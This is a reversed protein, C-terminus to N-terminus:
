EEQVEEPADADKKKEELKISKPKIAEQKTLNTNDLVHQVKTEYSAKPISFEVTLSRGKFMMNHMANIAGQAEGKSSFEIFGFGRNQNNTSNLPVDISEIKGFKAFAKQLHKERM